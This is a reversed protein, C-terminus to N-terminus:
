KKEGLRIMNGNNDRINFEKIAWLRNVLQDKPYVMDKASFDAYLDQINRVYLYCAINSSTQIKNVLQLHIEAHGSKLIAYNGYNVAKFGLKREYFDIADGIHIVPLIPVTKEFM